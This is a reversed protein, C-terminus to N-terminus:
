DHGEHARVDARFRSQSQVTQIASALFVVRILGSHSLNTIGVYLVVAESFIAMPSLPFMVLSRQIAKPILVATERDETM